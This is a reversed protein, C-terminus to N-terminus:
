KHEEREEQKIKEIVEKMQEANMHEIGYKEAYALIKLGLNTIEYTAEM